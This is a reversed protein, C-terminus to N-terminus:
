IEQNQKHLPTIQWQFLNPAIQMNLSKDSFDPQTIFYTNSGHQSEYEDTQWPKMEKRVQIM